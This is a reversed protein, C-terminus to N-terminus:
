VAYPDLALATAPGLFLMLGNIDVLM